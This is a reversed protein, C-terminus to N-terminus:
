STAKPKALKAIPIGTAGSLALATDMAKAGDREIRSLQAPSIAVRPELGYLWNSLGRVTLKKRARFQQLATKEM